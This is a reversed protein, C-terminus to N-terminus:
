EATIISEETKTKKFSLKRRFLMLCVLMVVPFIIACLLGPKIGYEPLKNAILSVVAPGSACGIDGALALFGFMTTGGAPCKRSALSFTGPWMIGVSLGCLACGFLALFPNKMFVALLYSTVCLISSICMFSRLDIRDGFKGFFARSSGMLVAFLCPGLLDGVTKSLRLGNEAFFSAWQSMAQESAGACIMLIFFLWFRGSLLLKGVPMKQSDDVLKNIPVFMFVFANIFPVISWLAPLLYWRDMGFLRFGATSLVVVAVHGWCYFSHLLSMAAEKANSSPAAEVIPSILVEILGGGIANLIIACLLGCYADSFLQPFISLGILGAASFFHAAVVSPRYGIRDVFMSAIADVLIQVGFNISILLGIKEVSIDFNRQFTLFLLPSLNNIIAQVIYGVYCAYITNQYKVQKKM